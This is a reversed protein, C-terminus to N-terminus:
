KWKAMEKKFEDLTVFQGENVRNEAEDLAKNYEEISIRESSANNEDYLVIIEHLTDADTINKVVELAKAREIEINRAKM